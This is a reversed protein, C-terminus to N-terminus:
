LKQLRISTGATTGISFRYHIQAARHRMNRLGNGQDAVTGDFGKGDDSISVVPKGNALSIELCIERAEAYKISNNIAEKIVMYLNRKEERGLKYALAEDSIKQQYRIATAKCLHVAFHNIRAVLDELYDRRDDLVWIMDRLGDIAEQTSEKVKFLHSEEGKEMLALSAYVKVSNLTGGLDDHLDGALRTRILHEQQLHSIRLRYFGYGIVFAACVLAAKFWGTQYWKPLYVLQLDVPASWVGDENAARIRFTYTGPSL